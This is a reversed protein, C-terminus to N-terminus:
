IKRENPVLFTPDCVIKPCEGTIKEVIDMTSKDRVFIEPIRKIREIIDPYRLFDEYKARGASVAFAATPAKWAEEGYFVPKRFVPTCVNWIEDSGLLILDLKEDEQIERIELLEQDELFKQRKTRGNLNKM